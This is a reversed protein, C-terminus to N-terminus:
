EESQTIELFGITNSGADAIAYIPMQVHTGVECSCLRLPDNTSHLVYGRQDTVAPDTSITIRNAIPANVILYTRNPNGPVLEAATNTVTASRWMGGKRDATTYDKHM